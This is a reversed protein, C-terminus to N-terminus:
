MVLGIVAVAGGVVIATIAIPILFRNARRARNGYERPDSNARDGATMGALEWIGAWLLVGLGFGAVTAGIPLM